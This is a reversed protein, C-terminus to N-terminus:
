RGGGARWPASRSASMAQEVQREVQVRMTQERLGTKRDAVCKSELQQSQHIDLAFQLTSSRFQKSREGLLGTVKLQYRGAVFDFRNTGTFAIEKDVAQRAPVVIVDAWGRFSWHPRAEVGPKGIDESQAFSRWSLTNAAGEPGSLIARVSLVSAYQAGSNSFVVTLLVFPAHEPTYGLYTREGLLIALRPGRWYQQYATFTTTGLAAALAVVVAVLAIADSTSM